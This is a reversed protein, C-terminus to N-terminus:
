KDNDGSAEQVSTLVYLSTWWVTLLPLGAAITDPAVLPLLVGYQSVIAGVYRRTATDFPSRAPRTASMRRPPPSRSLSPSPPKDRVCQPHRFGANFPFASSWPVPRGLKFGYYVGDNGIAKYISINLVQARVRASLTHPADTLRQCTAARM